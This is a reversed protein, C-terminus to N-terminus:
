LCQGIWIIITVLCYIYFLRIIALLGFVHQMICFPIYNIWNYMVINVSGRTDILWPFVVHCERFFKSLKLMLTYFVQRRFWRGDWLVFVFEFEFTHRFWPNGLGNGRNNAPWSRQLRNRDNRHRPVWRWLQRTVFANISGDISRNM